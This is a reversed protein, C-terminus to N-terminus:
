EVSSRLVLIHIDEGIHITPPQETDFGSSNILITTFQLHFDFYRADRSAEHKAKPLVLGFNTDVRGFHGSPM